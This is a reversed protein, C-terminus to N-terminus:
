HYKIMGNNSNDLTLTVKQKKIREYIFKRLSFQRLKVYYLLLNKRKLVTFAIDRFTFKM